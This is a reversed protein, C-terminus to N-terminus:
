FPGLHGELWIKWANLALWQDYMAWDEYKPLRVADSAMRPPTGSEIEAALAARLDQLYALTDAVDQRSGGALPDSNANHTYVVQDMDLDLIEGLTRELEAVTFDPMFFFPLRNPAVLDAIYGVREGAVVPITMGHGHSAGFHNLQLTKNGLVIDKRSGGWSEDPLAMDPHPNAKMWNYADVHAIVTAGADKFIQGGGSHDWHNHTHVLYRIPQNTTAKIAELLGEAHGSNIPDVVIVGDGTVVFMSIYTTPGQYAYVGDAVQRPNAGQGLASNTLILCFSLLLFHRLNAM